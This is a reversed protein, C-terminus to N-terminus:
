PFFGGKPTRLLARVTSKESTRFGQGPEKQSFSFPLDRQENMDSGETSFVQPYPLLRMSFGSTPIMMPDVDSQGVIFRAASTSFSSSIGWSFRTTDAWRVGSSM